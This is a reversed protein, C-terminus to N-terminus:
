PTSASSRHRCIRLHHSRSDHYEDTGCTIDKWRQRLTDAEPTAGHLHHSLLMAVLYRFGPEATNDLRRGYGYLHSGYIATLCSLLTAWNRRVVEYM